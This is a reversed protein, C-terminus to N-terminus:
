EQHQRKPQNGPQPYSTCFSETAGHRLQQWLNRQAELKDGALRWGEQFAIRGADGPRFGVGLQLAQSAAALDLAPEGQMQLPEGLTVQRREYDFTVYSVPIGTALSLVYYGSRWHPAWEIQGEPCLALCISPDRALKRILSDVTATKRHLSVPECRLLKLWPALAFSFESEIVLTMLRRGAVLRAVQTLLFDWRSTHPYGVFIVQPCHATQDIIKWGFCSMQRTM